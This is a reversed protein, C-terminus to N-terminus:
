PTPGDPFWPNHYFSAKIWVTIPTKQGVNPEVGNDTFLREVPGDPEIHNWTFIMRSGKRFTPTIIDMSRQSIGQAEEGWFETYGELSKISMSTYSLLGRFIILPRDQSLCIERDTIKFRDWLDFLRIKDELLQKSPRLPTRSRRWGCVIRSHGRVMERILGEAAFHSKGSGPGWLHGCLAAEGHSAQIDQGCRLWGEIKKRRVVMDALCCCGWFPLVLLLGIVVAKWFRRGGVEWPELLGPRTGQSYTPTM